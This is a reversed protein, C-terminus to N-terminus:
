KFCKTYLNWEYGKVLENLVALHRETIKFEM